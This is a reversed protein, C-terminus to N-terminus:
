LFKLIEIAQRLGERFALNMLVEISESLQEDNTEVLVINDSSCIKLKNDKILRYEPQSIAKQWKSNLHGKLKYHIDLNTVIESYESLKQQKYEVPDIKNNHDIIFSFKSNM